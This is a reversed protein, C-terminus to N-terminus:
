PLEMLLLRGFDISMAFFANFFVLFAFQHVFSVNTRVQADLDGLFVNQM